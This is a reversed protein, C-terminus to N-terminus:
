ANGLTCALGKRHGGLVETVTHDAVEWEEIRDDERGRSWGARGGQQGKTVSM